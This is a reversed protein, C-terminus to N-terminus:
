QSQNRKASSVIAGFIKMIEGAEQQLAAPEAGSAVETALMLRLWYHTERAEKLCIANKSIFDARNQGAQAEEANAGISTASRLLQSILSREGRHEQELKHCFKVVRVSFAFTRERIDWPKDTPTTNM